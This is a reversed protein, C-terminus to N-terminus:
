KISTAPIILGIAVPEKLDYEGPIPFTTKKEMVPVGMFQLKGTGEINGAVIKNIKGDQVELMGGKVLFSADFKVALTGIPKEYVSVEMSPEHSTKITHELIPVLSKKEPPYKVKDCYELLTKRKKWTEALIDTPIDNSLLEGLNKVLLDFIQDYFGDPLKMGRFREAMEQKVGQFSGSQKLENARVAAENEVEFTNALTIPKNSM